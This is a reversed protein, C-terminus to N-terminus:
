NNCTYQFSHKGKQLLILQKLTFLSIWVSILLQVKQMLTKTFRYGAICKHATNCMAHLLGARIYCNGM